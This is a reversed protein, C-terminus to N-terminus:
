RRLHSESSTVSRSASAGTATSSAAASRGATWTSGKPMGKFDLDALMETLVSAAKYEGKRGLYGVALFAVQWWWACPVSSLDRLVRLEARAILREEDTLGDM